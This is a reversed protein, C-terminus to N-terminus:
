ANTRYESITKWNEAACLGLWRAATDVMASDCVPLSDVLSPLGGAFKFVVPQHHGHELGLMPLCRWFVSLILTASTELVEGSRSSDFMATYVRRKPIDAYCSYTLFAASDDGLEITRLLQLAELNSADLRTPNETCWEIARERCEDFRRSSLRAALMLYRHEPQCSAETLM